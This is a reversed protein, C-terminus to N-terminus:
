PLPWYSAYSQAAESCYSQWACRTLNIVSLSAIPKGIFQEEFKPLGQSEHIRDKAVLKEGRDKFQFSMSSAFERTNAGKSGVYAM